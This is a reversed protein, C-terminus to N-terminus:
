SGIPGSPCAVSSQKGVNTPGGQCLFAEAELQERLVIRPAEYPKKIRDSMPVGSNTEDSVTM